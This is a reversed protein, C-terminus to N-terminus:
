IGTFDLESFDNREGGMRYVLGTENQLLHDLNRDMGESIEIMATTPIGM